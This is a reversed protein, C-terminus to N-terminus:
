SSSIGKPISVLVEPRMKPPRDNEAESKSIAVPNLM